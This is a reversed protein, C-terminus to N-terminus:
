FDFKFNLSINYIKKWIELGLIWAQIKRKVAQINKDQFTSFLVSRKLGFTDSVNKNM